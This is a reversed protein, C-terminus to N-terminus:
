TKGPENPEENQPAMEKVIGQSCSVDSEAPVRLSSVESTEGTRDPTQLLARPALFALNKYLGTYRSVYVKNKFPLVKRWESGVSTGVGM